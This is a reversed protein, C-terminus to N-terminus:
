RIPRKFIIISYLIFMKILVTGYYLMLQKSKIGYVGQMQKVVLESDGYCHLKHIGILKKAWFM